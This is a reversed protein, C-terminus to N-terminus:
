HKFFSRIVAAVHEIQADTLEPFIPIALAPLKLEHARGM